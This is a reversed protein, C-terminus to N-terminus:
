KKNLFYYYYIISSLSIFFIIKNLNYPDNPENICCVHNPENTYCVENPENTYCVENPENTYKLKNTDKPIISVIGDKLFLYIPSIDKKYLKNSYPNYKIIQETREKTYNRIYQMTNQLCLDYFFKNLYQKKSYYNLM